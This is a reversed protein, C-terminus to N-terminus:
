EVSDRFAVGEGSIQASEQIPLIPRATFSLWPSFPATARALAAASDTEVIAFGGAGDAYGYFGASFDTGAPPQWNSFVDLVRREAEETTDIFEWSVHFLM